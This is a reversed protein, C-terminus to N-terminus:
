AKMSHSEVMIKEKEYTQGFNQVQRHSVRPTEPFTQRIWVALCGIVDSDLSFFPNVKVKM